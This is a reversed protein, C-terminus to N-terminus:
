CLLPPAPVSLGIDFAFDQLELDRGERNERNKGAHDLVADLYIQFIELLGNVIKLLLEPIGDWRCTYKFRCRLYSEAWRVLGPLDEFLEPTPLPDGRDDRGQTPIRAKITDVDSLSLVLTGGQPPDVQGEACKQADRHKGPIWSDPRNYHFGLVPTTAPMDSSVAVAPSAEPVEPFAAQMEGPTPDLGGHREDEGVFPEAESRAYTAVASTESSPSSASESGSSDPSSSPLVLRDRHLPRYMLDAVSSHCLLSLEPYERRTQYLLYRNETNRPQLDDFLVQHFLIPIISSTACDRRM